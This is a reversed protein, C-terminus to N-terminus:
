RGKPESMLRQLAIGTAVALNLSDVEPRTSIRLRRQALALAGASLGAGETGVLLAFRQSRGPSAAFEDIDLSPSGPTLALLEFGRQRLRALCGPWLDPAEGLRAFPVRLSHAMSTRVAKRYLPDGATPSLLVGGVGFAAANRFVGGVNDANAVAELVILSGASAMLEDASLAPPRRVLALCGRHFDYGTLQEFLERPCLYIPASVARSSLLPELARYAAENLLLSDFIHSREDLLREVVLRGEAIFLGRPALARTERLLTYDALRPDSSCTVHIVPVRRELEAATELKWASCSV